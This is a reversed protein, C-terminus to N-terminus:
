SSIEMVGLHEYGHLSDCQWAKPPKGPPAGGEGDASAKLAKATLRAREARIEDRLERDREADFYIVGDVLTKDARAYISLPHGSWLVLDADKGVRISGMREDLHLLKAPNLTVLKLAEIESMGGYKVAKAAEQNLRRSMELSDSNVAVTVGAESMLVTNYPIAYRVEWKYAWWDAFTSAGAGHAAMEPAVKYGELIHTFTQIRFGLDEALRMLMLIESQAYSHCHVFRESDLIEVLTELQLDRRPPVTSARASSSLARYDDWAKQYDRAVLFRDRMITEVGMRSQPYRSTYEDGWNSQKVNEGLAFKFSPPAGDLKM